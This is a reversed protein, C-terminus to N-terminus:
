PAVGGKSSLADQGRPIDALPLADRIWRRFVWVSTVGLSLWFSVAIAHTVWVFQRGLDRLVQQAQPGFGALPDSGIHPAGVLFPVTLGAVAVAWRWVGRGFALAVCAGAAGGAALLWWGQRSGLRAADMGPIEAPLGLSPWLHLSLFGAAALGLALAWPSTDACRRGAWLSLVVLALLANGFGHLVNAIWTWFSREAGDGPAWDGALADAQDHVHAAHAHESEPPSLKQDEFTEAKLIIPIAWTHQVLTQLSGVLLAVALAAWILRQFLKM